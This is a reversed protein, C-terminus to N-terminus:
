SGEEVNRAVVLDWIGTRHHIKDLLWTNGSRLFHLVVTFEHDAESFSLTGDIFAAFKDDNNNEHDECCIIRTEQIDLVDTPDADKVPRNRIESDFSTYCAPTSCDKIISADRRDWANQLQYITSRAQLQMDNLNWFPDRAAAEGIITSAKREKFNAFVLVVSLSVSLLAGLIMVIYNAENLSDNIMPPVVVTLLASVLIWTIFSKTNKDM